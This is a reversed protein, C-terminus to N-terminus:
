GTKFTINARYVIALVLNILVFVLFITSLGADGVSSYGYSGEVLTSGNVVPQFVYFTQINYADLMLKLFWVITLVALPWSEWYITLIQFIIGIFLMAVFIIDLM